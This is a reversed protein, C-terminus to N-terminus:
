GVRRVAVLRDRLAAARSGDTWSERVVGGVEITSHVITGEDALLAVHGVADRDTSRFFLLDDPAIASFDVGEGVAVQEGTDRPLAIGRAAFANQVLASCDLGAVTIGGWLYPAGAFNQWAWDAASMARAITRLAAPDALLGGVIRARRGDPLTVTRAGERQLRGRHPVFCREGGSAKVTVGLSWQAAERWRHVDELPVVQAYGQHLWGEDQDFLTRVRLMRGRTELVEAGEGLPIQSVQESQLAPQDLLPAVSVRVLVGNM